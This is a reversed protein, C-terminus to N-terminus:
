AEQNFALINGESDNCWAVKMGGMSAIGNETKLGPFDYDLFKVGKGRLAAMDAALDPTDFTLMTAQNTGAYGSQYLFMTAGKLRYITGEANREAPEIGLKDRYWAIARDVDHVPIMGMAARDAFMAEEETAAPGGQQPSEERGARQCQRV